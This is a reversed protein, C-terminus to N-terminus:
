SPSPTPSPTDTRVSSGHPVERFSRVPSALLFLFAVVGLMGAIFLTPRMGIADALLGAGLAAPPAVVYGIFGVAATVRGLLRDPTVSQTVTRSSVTWLPVTLGVLAQTLGLVLAAAVEPGAAFPLIMRSAAELALAVIMVPGLGIRRTLPAVIAAGLVSFPGAAAIAIGLVAPSLGLENTAYIVLIAQVAFWEINAIAIGVTAILVIRQTRIFRVGEAVQDLFGRGVERPHPTERVRVLALIAASAVFSAADVAMAIPATLAQVLAGALSPGAVHAVADSGQLRSNAAVLRSRGVLAPVFASRSLELLTSLTGAVLAVLFLQAMTLVGLAAAVPISGVVLASGIDAAILLPLKRMRDVWVGIFPAAAAAPAMRAAVLLGTETAGAGLAVIATLPLALITIQSGLRAISYGAWLKGFEGAIM